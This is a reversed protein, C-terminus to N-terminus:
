AGALEPYFRNLSEANGAINDQLVKPDIQVNTDKWRLWHHEPLTRDLCYWFVQAATRRDFLAQFPVDFTARADRIEAIATEILGLRLRAMAKSIEMARCASEIVEDRPRHVIMIRVDPRLRVVDRWRLTLASDVIGTDRADLLRALDGMNQFNLSPEHLTTVPPYTLLKAL